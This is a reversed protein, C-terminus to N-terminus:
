NRNAAVKIVSEIWSKVSRANDDLVLQKIKEVDEVELDIVKKIKIM